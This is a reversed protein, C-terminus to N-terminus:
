KGLKRYIKVIKSKLPINTGFFNRRSFHFMNYLLSNSIERIRLSTEFNVTVVLIRKQMNYLPVTDQGTSYQEHHECFLTCKSDKNCLVKQLAYEKTAFVFVESAVIKEQITLGM